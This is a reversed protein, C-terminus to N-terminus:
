CDDNKKTNLKNWTHGIFNVLNKGMDRQCLEVLNKFVAKSRSTHHHGAEGQVKGVAARSCAM